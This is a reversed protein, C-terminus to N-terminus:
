KKKSGGWVFYGVVAIVAVVGAGVIMMNKKKGNSTREHICQKMFAQVAGIDNACTQSRTKMHKLKALEPPPTPLNPVAMRCADPFKGEHATALAVSAPTAIDLQHLASVGVASHPCLMYDSDKHYKKM